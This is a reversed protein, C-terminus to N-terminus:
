TPDSALFPFSEDFGHRRPQLARGALDCLELQFVHAILELWGFPLRDLLREGDERDVRPVCRPRHRHEVDMSSVMAKHLREPISCHLPPADRWATDMRHGDRRM